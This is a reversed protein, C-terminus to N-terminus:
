APLEEPPVSSKIIFGIAGLEAAQKSAYEEGLNTLMVVQLNKTEPDNKLRKLVELGDIKPMIIDLLILDPKFSRAKNIGDLGDRAMEVSYQQHRFLREYFRLVYPDDEIILLKAM